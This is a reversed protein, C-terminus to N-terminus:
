RYVTNQRVYRECIEEVARLRSAMNKLKQEFEAVIQSTTRRIKIGVRSAKRSKKKRKMKKAIM